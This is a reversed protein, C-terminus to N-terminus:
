QNLIISAIVGSAVAALVYNGDVERWEYGYPPQRLHYYRYDIHRGRNWDGWGVYGGRRWDSRDRWGRHYGNDYHGRDHYGRNYGHDYGRDYRGHDRDHDHWGQAQAATGFALSGALVAMATTTLIRKM